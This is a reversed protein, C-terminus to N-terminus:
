VTMNLHLSVFREHYQFDQLTSNYIWLELFLTGAFENRTSNWSASYGHLDLSLDNFILRNFSIQNLSEVYQYDLSFVTLSEWSEKDAVFVTFNYLSPLGSPTHNFSDPASQTENRFKVEVQYYGCTGLHNGIGLFVSYYENRTINFPYDKALHGSGLIWLESFFETQPLVLLSQLAPSAVLLASVCILVVFLVSYEQLNV